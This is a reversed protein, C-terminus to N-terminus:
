PIPDRLRLADAHSSPLPGSYISVSPVEDSGGGGLVTDSGYGAYVTDDGDGALVLTLGTQPSWSHPQRRLGTMAHGGDIADSRLGGKLTDGAVLGEITDRQESGELVALAPAAAILTM